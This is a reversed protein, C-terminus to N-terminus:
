MEYRWGRTSLGSHRVFFLAGERARGVGGFASWGRASLEDKGVDKLFM